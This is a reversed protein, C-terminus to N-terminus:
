PVTPTVNTMVMSAGLTATITTAANALGNIQVSTSSRNAPIIAMTPLTLAAPNTQSLMIVTDAAVTADLSINLAGAGGVVPVPSAFLSNIVPTTTTLITVTRSQGLTTFTVNAFGAVVATFPVSLFTGGRTILGSSQITIIGPHHNTITVPADQAVAADLSLSVSNEAGVQTKNFPASAGSFIPTTVVTMSAVTASSGLQATVFAGGPTGALLEFSAQSNGAPLIVSSPLSIVAPDSSSLMITSDTIPDIDAGITITTLLGTQLRSNTSFFTLTPNDVVTLPDIRTSSGLQATIDTAGAALATVTVSLSSTSGAPIVLTAPVPLVAPNSSTVNVFTDNPTPVDTFATLDFSTGTLVKSPVNISTISPETVVVLPRSRTSAGLTATLTTAGAAVTTLPVSISSSSGALVIVDGPVSAVGPDSSSLSVLTDEAVVADLSVSLTQPVGLLVRESPGSFSTIVPSSIVAVVQSRSSSGLQGMLTTSGEALATIAISNSSGGAPITISAPVDLVGATSSSLMVETDAAVIANLGV